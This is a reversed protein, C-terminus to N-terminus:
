NLGKGNNMLFMKSLTQVMRDYNWAFKQGDVGTM